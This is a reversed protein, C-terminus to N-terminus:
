RLARSDEITPCKENRAIGPTLFSLRQVLVLRLLGRVQVRNCYLGIGSCVGQLKEGVGFGLCAGFLGGRNSERVRNKKIIERGGEGGDLSVQLACQKVCFANGEVLSKDEVVERCGRCLGWGEVGVM